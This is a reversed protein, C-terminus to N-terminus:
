QDLDITQTIRVFGHLDTVGVPWRGFALSWLGVVLSREEDLSNGVQALKQCKQQKGDEATPPQSAHASHSGTVGAPCFNTISRGPYEVRRIAASSLAAPTIRLRKAKIRQCRM